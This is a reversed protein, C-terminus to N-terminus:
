GHQYNQNETHYMVLNDIPSRIIKGLTLGNKQLARELIDRYLHAISGVFNIAYRDHGEYKMITRAVFENLSSFVLKEFYAHSIHQFIFKSFSAMYRSPYESHYTNHIVDEVRPRYEAIFKEHLDEPLERYLWAKVLRKGFDAGSGEDGLIYGLSPLNDIIEQGDYLCSNSGTGLICAIGPQHLCVARAAGLLDHEVTVEAESFIERLPNQIIKVLSPASCGAGYFYVQTVEGAKLDPVLSEEVVKRVVQEDVYYPNLGQTHFVHRVEKNDFLHWNTKTAGSDAILIM